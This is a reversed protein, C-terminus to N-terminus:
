RSRIWRRLRRTGWLVAVTAGVGGAAVTLEGKSSTSAPCGILYVCTEPHVDKWAFWFGWFGPIEILTGLAGAGTLPNFTEGSDDVITGNPGPAFIRPGRFFAKASTNAFAVVIPEGGVLDNVVRERVLDPYAYAKAERHRILGLVFTKPHMWDDPYRRSQFTSENKYYDYRAAYPDEDYSFGPDICVGNPFCIPRVPRALLKTGPYLSKWDEWTTRTSTRLVLATGHYSGNAADCLIQPWLSATWNDIM